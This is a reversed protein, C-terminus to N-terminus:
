LIYIKKAINNILKDLNDVKKFNDNCENQIKNRIKTEIAYIEDEKSAKIYDRCYINQFCCYFKCKNKICKYEELVDQYKCRSDIYLQKKLAVEDYKSKKIENRSGTNRIYRDFHIGTGNYRHTSNEM